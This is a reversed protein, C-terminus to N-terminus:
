ANKLRNELTYNRNRSQELPTAWRVNGPEYHGDNDIRDLTLGLPQAGTDNVYTWFSSHWQPCVRIGRGGYRPYDPHNPNACRSNMQQWAKYRPHFRGGPEGHACVSCRTSTGARLSSQQVVRENGCACRVLWFNAQSRGTYKKRGHYGAVIWLGFQQGTLDKVRGPKETKEIGCILTM